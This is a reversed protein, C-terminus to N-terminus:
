NMTFKMVVPNHDTNEFGADVTKVSSVSVNPSVFFGDIVYYQTNDVDSPNYPQNLLRCTPTSDDFEFKWGSDLTMDDLCGVAWLDEHTNPYKGLTGPFCQNWDGGAIVWNGKEYEGKVFSMLMNTQAIKGEGSDYAELHFNVVVLQKETGEVPIYSVLMARKLNAIRLPWSFPCPLSYREADSIGFKTTTFVGSNIKGFPPWPFPVFDCSYNLAFTGNAMSYTKTYDKNFSRKSDTDVEQLLRIDANISNLTRVIGDTYQAVQTKDAVPAKGGGDMVFDSYKGLASYGTNWTVITVEKDPSLVETKANEAIVAKDIDAPKYEKITLYLLLLAALIVIFLIVALVMKLIRKCM